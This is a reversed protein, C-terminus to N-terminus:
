SKFKYDEKTLFMARRRFNNMTSGVTRSISNTLSYQTHKDLIEQNQQERAERLMQKNINVQLMKEDVSMRSSLRFYKRPSSAKSSCTCNHLKDTFTQNMMDKNERNQSIKELDIQKKKILTKEFLLSTQQQHKNSNEMTKAFKNIYYEAINQSKLEAIKKIKDFKENSKQLKQKKDRLIQEYRQEANSLKEELKEGNKENQDLEYNEEQVRNRMRLFSIRQDQPIRIAFQALQKEEKKKIYELQNNKLDQIQKKQLQLMDQTLEIYKAKTDSSHQIFGKAKKQRKELVALKNNQCKKIMSDLKIMKQENKQTNEDYAKQQNSISRIYKYFSSEMTNYTGTIKTQLESGYYSPYIDKKPVRSTYNKPASFYELEDPQTSSNSKRFEIQSSNLRNAQTHQQAIPSQCFTGYLSTNM